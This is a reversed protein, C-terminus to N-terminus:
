FRGTALGCSAPSSTPSVPISGTVEETHILAPGDGSTAGRLRAPRKGALDRTQHPETDGPTQPRQSGLQSGALGILLVLTRRPSRRSSSRTSRPRCAAIKQGPDAVGVLPRGPVPPCCM